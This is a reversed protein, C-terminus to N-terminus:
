VINARGYTGDERGNLHLLVKPLLVGRGDEDLADLAVCAVAQGQSVVKDVQGTGLM